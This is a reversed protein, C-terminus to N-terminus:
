FFRLYTVALATIISMACALGNSIMIMQDRTFFGHTSFAGQLFVLIGLTGLSIGATEGTEWLEYLQPLMLGPNTVGAIWIARSWNIRIAFEERTM